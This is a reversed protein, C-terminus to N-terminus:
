AVLKMLSGARKELNVRADIYAKSRAYATLGQVADWLSACQGEEETACQIAQRAETQTFGKSVFWNILTKQSPDTSLPLSFKKADRIANETATASANVYETIAPLAEENFRSPAYKSHRIKLTAVDEAGWVILNGCVERFLFTLLGFTQSGVESNYLMVGRHLQDREGGGDVMSGGNILFVFVDRDSAYLGSPKGSWDKPNFFAGQSVDVIRQGARVVEADWIRGYTESTAALLRSGNQQDYVLTKLPEDKDERQALGTNLCDVALKSPLSRLYGQPAGIRQAVQGFSWNTTDVEESGIAFRVEGDAGELARLDHVIKERCDNRRSEVAKQLDTLNTFRQDDPRSKWQEHAQYLEM